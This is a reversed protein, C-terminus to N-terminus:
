QYKINTFTGETIKKNKLSLNRADFSFTGSIKKNITDVSSLIVTGSYATYLSDTVSSSNTFTATAQIQALFPDLNYTGASIGLVNVNLLDSGITSTGTILFKNSQRTTLRTVTTWTVGNIKCSMSASVPVVDSVSSKKSCSLSLFLAVILIFISVKKM